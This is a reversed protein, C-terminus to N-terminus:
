AELVDLQLFGKRVIGDGIINKQVQSTGGSIQNGRIFRYLYETASGRMFGTAGFLQLSGDVVDHAMRTAFLKAMSSERRTAPRGPVSANLLGRYTLSRAAEHDTAMEAIQWRIGQFDAIRSGFQRREKGYDVALRLACTAAAV